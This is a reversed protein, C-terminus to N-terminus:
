KNVSRFTFLLFLISKSCFFHFSIMEILYSAHPKRDVAMAHASHVAHMANEGPVNELSHHPRSTLPVPEAVLSHNTGRISKLIFHKLERTISIANRRSRTSHDRGLHILVSELIHIEFVNEGTESVRIYASCTQLKCLNSFQNAFIHASDSKSYHTHTPAGIAIAQSIVSWFLSVFSFAFLFWLLRATNSSRRRSITSVQPRGYPDYCELPPLYHTNDNASIQPLNNILVIIACAYLCQRTWMSNRM